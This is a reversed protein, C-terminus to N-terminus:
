VMPMAMLGTVAPMRQTRAATLAQPAEPTAPPERSRIGSHQEEETDAVVDGHLNNADAEYDANDLVGNFCGKIGKGVCQEGSGGVVLFAALSAYGELNAFVCVFPLRRGSFLTRSFSYAWFCFPHEISELVRKKAPIYGVGGAVGCELSACFRVCRCCLEISSHIRPSITWSEVTM